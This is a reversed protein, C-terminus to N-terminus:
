RVHGTECSYLLVREALGAKGCDECEILSIQNFCGCLALAARIHVRADQSEARTLAQVLHM